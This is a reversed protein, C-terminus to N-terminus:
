NAFPLVLIPMLIQNGPKLVLRSAKLATGVSQWTGRCFHWHNKLYFIAACDVTDHSMLFLFCRFRATKSNLKGSNEM